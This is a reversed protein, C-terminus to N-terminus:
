YYSKYCAGLTFLLLVPNPDVFWFLPKINDVAYGTGISFPFGAELETDGSYGCCM